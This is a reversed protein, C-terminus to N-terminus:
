PRADPDELTVKVFSFSDGEQSSPEPFADAVGIGAARALPAFREFADRDFAYAAGADLGTHVDAFRIKSIALGADALKPNGAVYDRLRDRSGAVVCADEFRFVEGADAYAFFGLVRSSNEEHRM